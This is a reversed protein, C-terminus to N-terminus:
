LYVIENNLHLENLFFLFLWLYSRSSWSTSACYSCHVIGCNLIPITGYNRLSCCFNRPFYAVSERLQTHSRWTRLRVHRLPSPWTLSRTVSGTARILHCHTPRWETPELACLMPFILRVLNLLLLIFHSWVLTEKPLDIGAMPKRSLPKWLWMINLHWDTWDQVRRYGLKNPLKSSGM